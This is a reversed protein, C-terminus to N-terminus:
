SGWAPCPRNCDLWIRCLWRGVSSRQSSPRSLPRWALWCQSRLRRCKGGLGTRTGPRASWPRRPIFQLYLFCPAASLDRSSQSPRLLLKGEPGSDLLDHHQQGTAQNVRRGRGHGSRVEPRTRNWGGGGLRHSCHLRLLGHVALTKLAKCM